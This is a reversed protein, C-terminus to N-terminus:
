RYSPYYGRGYYGQDDHRQRYINRSARRQMQDLHRREGPSLYGDRLAAHRYRDIAYHQRQLQRYERPTEQGARWGDHIRQEQRWDRYRDHYSQASAPAAAALSATLGAAAIILTRM